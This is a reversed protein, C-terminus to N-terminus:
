IDPTDVSPNQVQMFTSVANNIGSARLASPYIIMLESTSSRPILTPGTSKHPVFSFEVGGSYYFWPSIIDIIGISM